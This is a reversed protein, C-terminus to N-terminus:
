YDYEYCLYGGQANMVEEVKIDPLIDFTTLVYDLTTNLNVSAPLTIDNEEFFTYNWANGSMDSLRSSANATQWKWWVRDIYNHHMFFMPDGASSYIDSMIGGSSNHGAVHPSTNFDVMCNFFSFYDNHIRCTDLKETGMYEIYDSTWARDLCYETNTLGPGIHMTTNAFAGDVLCADPGTGNGGFSEASWMESRFLDGANADAEENWWSMPGTYNCETRLLTEHTHMYYRHWPLFQGVNHVIDAVYVGYSTMNQLTRHVAQLDSWRSTVGDLTTNAPLNFLCKEATLYAEKESPTLNRWEKRVRINDATCTGNFYFTTETSNTSVAQVSGAALLLNTILSHM